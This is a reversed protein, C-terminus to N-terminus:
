IDNLLKKNCRRELVSAGISIPLLLILYSIVLMLMAEETKYYLGILDKAVFMLDALAVASLVSTEKMLFIMNACISPIAITFAQPLVIYRMVQASSLGISLGSELQIKDVSQLASRFSEGMYSGGLFTLGIIACWESSIRIGLKPLGFYLFFLQVILPTNRSLEIYITVIIKLVPLKYYLILSVLMGVMMSCIIGIVGLRITLVTAEQFMPIYKEIFIWDM